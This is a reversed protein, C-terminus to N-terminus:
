NHHMQTIIKYELKQLILTVEVEIVRHELQHRLTELRLLPNDPSNILPSARHMRYKNSVRQPYLSIRFMIWKSNHLLYDWQVRHFLCKEGKVTIIVSLRPVKYSKNCVELKKVVQLYAGESLKDPTSLSELLHVLWKHSISTTRKHNHLVTTRKCLWRSKNQIQTLNDPHHDIRLNTTIHTLHFFDTRNHAM